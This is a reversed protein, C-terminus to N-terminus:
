GARSPGCISLTPSLLSFEELRRVSQAECKAQAAFFHASLKEHDEKAAALQTRAEAVRSDHVQM